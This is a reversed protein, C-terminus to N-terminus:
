VKRLWNEDYVELNMKTQLSWGGAYAKGGKIRLTVVCDEGDREIADVETNYTTSSPPFFPSDFEYVEGGFQDAWVQAAERTEWTAADGINSTLYPCPPISRDFEGTHYMISEGSKSEVYFKM